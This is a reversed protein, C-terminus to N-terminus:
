IGFRFLVICYYHNTWNSKIGFALGAKFVIGRISTIVLFRFIQILM